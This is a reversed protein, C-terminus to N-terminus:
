QAKAHLKWLHYCNLLVAFGNMWAVPYATIVVGYIVFLISGILNLYRLYKMNSMILSIVVFGSALYGLIEQEM